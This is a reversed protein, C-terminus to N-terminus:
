VKVGRAGEQSGEKVFSLKYETILSVEMKYFKLYMSNYHIYEKKTQNWQSLIIIKLNIGTTTHILLENKKLVSNSETADICWM